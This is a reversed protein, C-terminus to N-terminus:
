WLPKRLWAMVRALVTPRASARARAAAIMKREMARPNYTIRSMPKDGEIGGCYVLGTVPTNVRRSLETGLVFFVGAQGM